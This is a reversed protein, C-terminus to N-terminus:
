AGAANQILLGLQEGLVWEQDEFYGNHAGAGICLEVAHDNGSKDLPVFRHGCEDSCVEEDRDDRSWQDGSFDM